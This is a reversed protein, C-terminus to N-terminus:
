DSKENVKEIIRRHCAWRDHVLVGMFRGGTM